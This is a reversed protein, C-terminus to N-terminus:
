ENYNEEEFEEFEEELKDYSGKYIWWDIHEKDKYRPIREKTLQSLGCITKGHIIIPHAYKDHHKKKLLKLFKQPSKPSIYCSTSYSGIEKEDLKTKGKEYKYEEYSSWFTAENITGCKAVRYVHQEYHEEGNAYIEEKLEQPICDELNWTREMINEKTHIIVIITYLFIM